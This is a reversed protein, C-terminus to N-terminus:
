PWPSALEWVHLSELFAGGGEVFLALGDSEPNPFILETFVVQGDGAFVEVSWWDVFMHLRLKGNALPLPAGHRTAFRPHFHARGSRTRDVFVQQATMDYGILTEQNPGVRVKLGVARAQQVVLVALLELTKGRAEIPHTGSPLAQRQLQWSRRRLLQLEPVPAQVLHVRGGLRRLTVRRPLSLQGRWPATPLAEAYLWNNMWGAWVRHRTEEPTGFWSISAYFDPGHDVWRASLAGLAVPEEPLFRRGDFYGVFYQSGSGGTPGGPNLDVKLLWRVDSPQDDVCLPFLDPCEWVGDVAGAPGFESLLEWQKLDRSASFRVKREAAMSVVM